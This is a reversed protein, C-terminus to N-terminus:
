CPLRMSSPGHSQEQVTPIEGTEMLAKFHRLAERVQQDPSLGCLSALRATLKGAPLHYEMTVRVETGRGGTAPTFQVSGQHRFSSGPLSHWTLYEGPQERVIEAEWSLAFPGRAKTTWRSRSDEQAQVEELAPIIEPLSALDRWRRYLEQAPLNITVAREVRLAKGKAKGEQEKPARQATSIGLMQYLASHRSIGRLLFVGGLLSLAIGWKDRKWLGSISLAAGATASLWGEVRSRNRKMLNRARAQSLEPRQKRVEYAVPRNQIM